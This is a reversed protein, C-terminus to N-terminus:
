LDRDPRTPAPAAVLEAYCDFGQGAAGTITFVIRVFRRAGTVDLVLEQTGAEVVDTVNAFTAAVGTERNQLRAATVAAFTVNDASDQVTIALVPTTGVGLSSSVRLLGRGQANRIDIGSSNFTGNIRRAAELLTVTGLSNGLDELRGKGM